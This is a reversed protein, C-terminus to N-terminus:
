AFVGRIPESLAVPHPQGQPSGQDAEGSQEGPRLLYHCCDIRAHGSQKNSPGYVMGGKIGAGGVLVIYCHPWLDRGASMAGANSTIQGMKPTRGFEGIAVVLTEKLMGCDAM